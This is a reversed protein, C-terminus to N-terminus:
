PDRLRKIVDDFALNPERRRERFATLDQIDELAKSWAKDMAARARRSTEATSQQRARPNNRTPRARKM